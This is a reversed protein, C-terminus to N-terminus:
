KLFTWCQLYNQTHSKGQSIMKTSNQFEDYTTRVRFHTNISIIDTLLFYKLYQKRQSAFYSVSHLYSISFTHLIIYETQLFCVARRYNLKGLRVNGEKSWNKITKICSKLHETNLIWLATQTQSVKYDPVHNHINQLLMSPWNDCAVPHHPCYTRVLVNTGV